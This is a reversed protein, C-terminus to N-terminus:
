WNFWGGEDKKSDEVVPRPFLEDIKEETKGNDYIWAGSGDAALQGPLTVVVPEAANLKRVVNALEATDYVEATMTVRSQFIDMLQPLKAVSDPSLVRECMAKLFLQQRHLRGVSGLEDNRYRLYKQAMDGDMHQYGKLIHIYLDGEPDEYNMNNEVYIDVGGFLDVVDSMIRPDIVAYHHITVGLLNAVTQQILKEGGYFYANNLAEPNARGPIMTVTYRPIVIFRVKGNEHDLSMLVIGDAQTGSDEKGEDLGILLINTYNDFRVDYSAQRLAKRELYGNYIEMQAAYFEDAWNYFRQGVWYIATGAISIIVFLLILRFFKIIMMRRKMARKRMINQKTVSNRAM